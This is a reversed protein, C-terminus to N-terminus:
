VKRLRQNSFELPFYNTCSNPRGWIEVIVKSSIQSTEVVRGFHAVPATIKFPKLNEQLIEVWDNIEINNM